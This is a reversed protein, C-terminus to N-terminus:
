PVSYARCRLSRTDFFPRQVGSTGKAVHIEGLVIKVMCRVTVQQIALYSTSSTPEPLRELLLRDEVISRIIPGFQEEIVELNYRGMPNRIIQSALAAVLTDADAHAKVLVCLIKLAKDLDEAALDGGNAAKTESTDIGADAAGGALWRERATEKEEETTGLGAGAVTAAAVAALSAAPPILSALSQGRASTDVGSRQDSGDGAQTSDAAALRPPQNATPSSGTLALTKEVDALLRSGRSNAGLPARHALATEPSPPPAAAGTATVTPRTGSATQQPEDLASSMSYWRVFEDFSVEGDRNFDM